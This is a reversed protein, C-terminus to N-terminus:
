PLTLNLLEEELNVPIIYVLWGDIFPDQNILIGKKEFQKNKKIIKGSLPAWVRHLTQNAAIIRVLVNGQIILDDIEPFHIQQIKGITRSYRRSMGLIATGDDSLKAWSHHGLLYYKGWDDGSSTQQSISNISTGNQNSANTTDRFKVARQVVGLLEEFSFPKPIFDFAGVKLSQVANELTAYGTIIIIPIDPYEQTVIETFQIGSIKPLMLDTIILKYKNQKLKQLAHDASNCDDLKFGEPILIKKASDLVVQEDEIILIDYNSFM